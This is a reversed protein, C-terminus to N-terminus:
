VVTPMGPRDTYTPYSVDDVVKGRKKLDKTTQHVM